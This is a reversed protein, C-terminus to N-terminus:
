MGLFPKPHSTSFAPELGERIQHQSVPNEPGRFFRGQRITAFRRSDLAMPPSRRIKPATHSFFPPTPNAGSRPYRALEARFSAAKFREISRILGHIRRVHCCANM